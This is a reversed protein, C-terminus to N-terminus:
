RNPRGEPMIARRVAALPARDDLAVGDERVVIGLRRWLDDLEVPAPAARMRDYLERLVPVGSAADGVRIVREMTWENGLTGGAAMIARLAHELGKRNGTRERISVDAVLCFLAGGWYTRGWTPTYDLGRDGTAPQGKPMDRVLDRWVAEARLAGARVRAIPEVYTALGEELWHQQEPLSPFALHVLEHTMVWDRELQERTLARGVDVMVRGGPYATGHGVGRGGTARVMVRAHSVPFRGYYTAVARASSEVWAVLLGAQEEPVELEISAGGVHLVMPSFLAAVLLHAATTVASM